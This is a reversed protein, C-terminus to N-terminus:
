VPKVLVDQMYRIHKRMGEEFTTAPMWRLVRGALSIDLVNIDVDFKRASRHIVQVRRSLINNLLRVVDNLSVGKGAGVNLIPEIGIFADPSRTMMLIFAEVVDDIYVYDRVTEGGGWIEIPENMLARAAFISAAGLQGQINQGPGFPNSVRLVRADVGWQRRYAMAYNEAAVKSAGYVGMPRLPHSECIPIELSEGYVTGGSSAFVFPVTPYRRLAELIRVTGVVNTNVDDLPAGNASRPVTSWALHFVGACGEIAREWDSVSADLSCCIQGAEVPGRTVAARVNHGETRLRDVLARGIFGSAGTVLYTKTYTV